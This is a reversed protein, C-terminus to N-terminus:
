KEVVVLIDSEGFLKVFIDDIFTILPVLPGRIFVIFKGLFNNTFLLNRLLGENYDVKLIKFGVSELISVFEDPSYRRLHGVSTDFDKLLNLKYLPANISPVSFIAVGGSKLSSYLKKMLVKDEEVHEFVEICLCYDYYSPNVIIEKDDLCKFFINNTGLVAKSINAQKIASDSIDIADIKVHRNSLWFDLTGVGCGMDLVKGPKVFTDNCHKLIRHYTFSAKSIISYQIQKNKKHFNNYFSKSM